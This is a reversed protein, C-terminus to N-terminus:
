IITTQESQQLGLEWKPQVIHIFQDIYHTTQQAITNNIQQIIPIHIDPKLNATIENFTDTVTNFTHSKQITTVTRVTSSTSKFSFSCFWRKDKPPSDDPNRWKFRKITEILRIKDVPINPLGPDYENLTLNRIYKRYRYRLKHATCYRSISRSMGFYRHHHKWAIAHYVWEEATWTEMGEGGIGKMIYKMLYNRISQISEKISKVSFDIGHKTSGIQYKESWLRTLRKQIDKPIYGLIAVHLHPYGSKHPEIVWIKDLNPCVKAIRNSLLRWGGKLGHKKQSDGFLEERTNTKGLTNTSATGDQYGTLTLLTVVSKGSRKYYEEVAYMKAIMKKKYAPSWRTTYPMDYYDWAGNAWAINNANSAVLIRKGDIINLYGQFRKVLTQESPSLKPSSSSSSSSALFKNTQFSSTTM